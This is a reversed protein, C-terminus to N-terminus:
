SELPFTKANSSVPVSHVVYPISVCVYKVIMDLTLDRSAWLFTGDRQDCLVAGDDANVIHISIISLRRM